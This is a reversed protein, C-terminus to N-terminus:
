RNSVPWTGEKYLLLRAVDLGQKASSLFIKRMKGMITIPRITASIQIKIRTPWCVPATGTTNATSALMAAPTITMRRCPSFVSEPSLATM